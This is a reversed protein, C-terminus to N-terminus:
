STGLIVCADFFSVGCKELQKNFYIPLEAENKLLVVPMKDALQFRDRPYRDVLCEKIAQESNENHYFWATDVYSFGNQIFYDFMESVAPKDVNSFEDNMIPLRM